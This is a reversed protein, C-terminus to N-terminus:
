LVAEIQLTISYQNFTEFDDIVDRITYSRGSVAILINKIDKEMNNLMTENPAIAYLKCSRRPMIFSGSVTQELRRRGDFLRIYDEGGLFEDKNQIYIRPTSGTNSWTGAELDTKLDTPLDHLVL